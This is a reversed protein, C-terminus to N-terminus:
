SFVYHMNRTFLQTLSQKNSTITITFIFDNIYHKKLFAGGLLAALKVLFSRPQVSHDKVRQNCFGNNGFLYLYEPSIYHHIQGQGHTPSV